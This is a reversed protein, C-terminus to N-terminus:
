EGAIEKLPVSIYIHMAESKKEFTLEGGVSDMRKRCNFLGNGKGMSIDPDFGTGGIEAIHIHLQQNGKVEIEISNAGSYKVANHLMEKFVLFVNRRKEGGMEIRNLQEAEVVFKMPLHLEELYESAYRRLYGVLNDATDFRSNMAWIIESMNRVLRNSHDAIRKIQSSEEPDKAHRLARDSLYRITTLGSGLDDHMESAIRNREHEIAKQKEIILAQERLLQKNRELKRQYYARISLYIIALSILICFTIFWWTMWFPRLITIQLERPSTNWVGDANAGVISFTYQGPRLNAYRAFGRVSYSEIYDNDVGIM